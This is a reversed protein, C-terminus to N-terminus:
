PLSVFVIMKLVYSVTLEKASIEVMSTAGNLVLGILHTYAVKIILTKTCGIKSANANRGLM